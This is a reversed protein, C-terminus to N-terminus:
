IVLLRQKKNRLSAQGLCAPISLIGFRYKIEGEYRDGLSLVGVKKVVLREIKTAKQREYEIANDNSITVLVVSCFIGSGGGSDWTRLLHVGSFSYGIYQYAFSVKGTVARVVPNGSTNEVTVDGHYRNSRNSKTVNISVVQDETDSLWGVLDEIIKPNIYESEIFSYKSHTLNRILSAKPTLSLFNLGIVGHVEDRFFAAFSVMIAIFPEFGPDIAFWTICAVLAIFSIIRYM